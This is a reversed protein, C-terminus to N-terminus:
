AFNLKAYEGHLEKAAKDYARAAEKADKFYGLQYYKGRAMIRACWSKNRGKYWCVGKYGSTNRRSLSYGAKNQAQTCVRLNSRRNDLGNGNIHDAHRKDGWKLGMIVRHMYVTRRNIQGHAYQKGKNEFLCWKLQSVKPYDEPDILAFKGQSLPIKM